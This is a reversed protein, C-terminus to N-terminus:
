LNPVLPIGVDSLDNDFEALSTLPMTSYRPEVNLPLAM